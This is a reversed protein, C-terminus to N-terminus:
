RIAIAVPIDWRRFKTQTQPQTRTWASALSELGPAKNGFVPKPNPTQFAVLGPNQILNPNSFIVVTYALLRRIFNAM